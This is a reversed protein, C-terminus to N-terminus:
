SFIGIFDFFYLFWILFLIGSKLKIFTVNDIKVEEINGFYDLLSNMNNVGYYVCRGLTKAKKGVINWFYLKNIGDPNEKLIDVIIQNLWARRQHIVATDQLNSM